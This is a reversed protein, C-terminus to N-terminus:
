GLVGFRCLITQVASRVIRYGNVHQGTQALYRLLKLPKPISQGHLVRPTGRSRQIPDPTPVRPPIRCTASAVFCVPRVTSALSSLFIWSMFINSWRSACLSFVTEQTSKSYAGRASRIVGGIAKRFLKSIVSLCRASAKLDRPTCFCPVAGPLLCSSSVSRRWAFGESM